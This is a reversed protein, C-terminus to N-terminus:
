FATGILKVLDKEPLDSTMAYAVDGQRYVAVRYGRSAQMYLPKGAVTLTHGVRSLDMGRADFVLVSLKHRGVGYVLQAAAKQGRDINAVRTLRGGLLMTKADRFRPANIRFSLKGQFWTELEDPEPTPVDVPSVAQHQDVAEQIVPVAFGTLPTVLMFVAGVVALAPVIQAIRRIRRRRVIKQSAGNLSIRLREKAAEPMRCPRRMAPRIAGQFWARREYHQRCDGCVAIHADFASRELEALEGDFYPDLFKRFDSCDIRM